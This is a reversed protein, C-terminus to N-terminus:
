PELRNTSHHLGETVLTQSTFSVIYLIYWVAAKQPVPKRATSEPRQELLHQYFSPQPTDFLTLPVAELERAACPFVPHLSKVQKLRYVPNLLTM